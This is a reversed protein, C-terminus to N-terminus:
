IMVDNLDNVRGLMLALDLRDREAKTGLDLRDREAKTGLDLREVITPSCSLGPILVSM